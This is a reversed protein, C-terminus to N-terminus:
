ALWRFLVFFLYGSAVLLLWGVRKFHGAVFREVQDHPVELARVARDTSVCQNASEEIGRLLSPRLWLFLGVFLAVVAGILSALVLADLLIDLQWSPAYGSLNQLTSPKDFLLGFYVLIYCAGFTILVGLARHHQYFWQEIGISRDLLQNMSRTSIWRNAMQSTRALLHPKFILLLSVAVGMLAGILLFIALARWLFIDISM